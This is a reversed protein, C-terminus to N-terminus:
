IGKRFGSFAFIGYEFAGGTGLEFFVYLARPLPPRFASAMTQIHGQMHRLSLQRSFSRRAAMIVKRFRDTNHMNTGARTPFVTQDDLLQQIGSMMLDMYQPASTRISKKNDMLLGQWVIERRGRQHIYSIEFSSVSQSEGAASSPVTM